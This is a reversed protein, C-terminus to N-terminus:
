KTSNASKLEEELESIRNTLHQFMNYTENIFTTTFTSVDVIDHKPTLIVKKSGRGSGKVTMTKFMSTDQKLTNKANYDCNHQQNELKKQIWEQTQKLNNEM